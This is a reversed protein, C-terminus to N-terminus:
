EVQPKGKRAIQWFKRLAFDLPAHFAAYVIGFSIPEFNFTFLNIQIAFRLLAIILCIGISLLVGRVFNFSFITKIDRTKKGKGSADILPEALLVGLFGILAGIEIFGLGFIWAMLFFSMAAFYAYLAFTKIGRGMNNFANVFRRIMKHGKSM